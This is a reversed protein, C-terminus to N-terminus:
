DAPALAKGNLSLSLPELERGHLVLPGREAKPHPNPRLALRAHVLTGDEGLEVRLEATDILWASPRYDKLTKPQPKADAM